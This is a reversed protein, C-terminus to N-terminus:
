CGLAETGRGEKDLTQSGGASLLTPFYWFCAVLALTKALLLTQAMAIHDLLTCPKLEM